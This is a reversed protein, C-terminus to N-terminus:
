RGFVHVLRDGPDHATVRFAAPQLDFGEVPVFVAVVFGQESVVVAALVLGRREVVVRGTLGSKIKVETQPSKLVFDVNKTPFNMLCGCLSVSNSSISM